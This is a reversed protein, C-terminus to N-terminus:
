QQACQAGEGDEDDDEWEGGARPDGSGAGFDELTADSDYEVEDIIDTIKPPSPKPLLEKLKEFESKDNLWGDEPFKIRVILFLDGKQDSRKLPMGEGTVKLVQEPKLVRGQPVTLQIGRGDLHTLVVRSFGTLAEALTISLDASLDAGARSFKEHPVESLEFIIDGPEQGPRQDAEGQLVIKEGEISGRPIYLELVKKTIVVREGKCKKCKQNDKFTEGTGKCVICESTARTVLGPGVQQLGTTVGQGKCRDCQRPKAGQKGGSGNCTGCVVNKTSAFRTTKGKYLEELTVEYEQEENKGRRPRRPGGAGPFGGMGPFGGEGMDMGGFMQALIDNVDMGASGPGSSSDFAAMGHTDYLHRKEDDYLIEYAQSVTKFKIEASEREEVPVKDPHSTLAAKHYAKKIETKSAGKTLGLIETITLTPRPPLNPFYYRLSRNGPKGSCSETLPTTCRPESRSKSKPLYSAFILSNPATM